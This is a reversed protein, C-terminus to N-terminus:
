GYADADALAARLSQVLWEDPVPKSLVAWARRDRAQVQDGANLAGAWVIVRLPQGNARAALTDWVQWGDIAGRLKLDLLVVDPWREGALRLAQQGDQALRFSIGEQPFLWDVLDQVESEDDVLLVDLM